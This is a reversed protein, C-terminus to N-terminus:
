TQDGRVRYAYGKLRYALLHEYQTIGGALFTEPVGDSIGQWGTECHKADELSFSPVAELKQAVAAAVHNHKEHDSCIRRKKVGGTGNSHDDLNGGSNSRKRRRAESSQLRGASASSSGDIGWSKM